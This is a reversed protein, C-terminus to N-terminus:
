LSINFKKILASITNKPILNGYELEIFFLEFSGPLMGYTKNLGKLGLLLKADEEMIGYKINQIFHRVAVNFSAIANNRGSFKYQKRDTKKSGMRKEVADLIFIPDELDWIFETGTGSMPYQSGSVMGYHQNFWNESVVLSENDFSMFILSNCNSWPMLIAPGNNKFFNLAAKEYLAFRFPLHVSALDVEIVDPFFPMNFANKTDRIMIPTVGMNKIETLITQWHEKDLSRTKNKDFSTIERATITVFPANNIKSSIFEDM